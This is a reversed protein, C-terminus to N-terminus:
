QWSSTLFHALNRHLEECATTVSRLHFLGHVADAVHVHEVEVGAGALAEVFELAEDRLPDYGCTAVWTPPLLGLDPAHLVAIEPDSRDAPNPVYHELYWRMDALTLGFGEGCQRYSERDTTTDVVPYVLALSAPRDGTRVARLAAAIVLNAGASDGALSLRGVDIDYTGGNERVWQWAAAVDDVAAPFPHEPALRYGVSVVVAGTLNALLRCPGDHSEISGVVWGGGHAFVVAPVVGHRPRYLRLRVHGDGLEFETVSLVSDAEGWAVTAELTGVARARSVSLSSLPPVGAADAKALM